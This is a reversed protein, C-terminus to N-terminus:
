TLAGAAVGYGACFASNRTQIYPRRVVSGTAGGPGRCTWVHQPGQFFYWDEQDKLLVLPWCSRGYVFILAMAALICEASRPCNGCGRRPCNGCILGGCFKGPVSDRQRNVIERFQADQLQQTCSISLIGYLLHQTHRQRYRWAEFGSARWLAQM